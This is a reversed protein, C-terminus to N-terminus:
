KVLYALTSAKAVMVAARMLVNTQYFITRRKRMGWAMTMSLLRCNSLALNLCNQELRLVRRQKAEEAWGGDLLWTSATFLITLFVKFVLSSLALTKSASIVGLPEKTRSCWM